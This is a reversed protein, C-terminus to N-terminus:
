NHGMYKVIKELLESLIIPKEIYEDFRANHAESNFKEHSLATVAFIPINKFNELMRLRICAEIGSIGFIEVDMLILDPLFEHCKNVVENGNNICITEFGNQQLFYSLMKSNIENDEVILIKKNM